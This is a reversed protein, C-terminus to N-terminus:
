SASVETCIRAAVRPLRLGLSTETAGIRLQGKPTGDEKVAASAEQMLSGIQKAYSLLLLGAQSPEVGRSHRTFLQVGLEEEVIRIRATVTSQVMNLKAAARNMSGNKAVAELIRLDDADM